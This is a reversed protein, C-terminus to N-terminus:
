TCEREVSVFSKDTETEMRGILEAKDLFLRLINTMYLEGYAPNNQLAKAIEM